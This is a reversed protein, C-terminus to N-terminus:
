LDTLTGRRDALMFVAGRGVYVCSEGVHKPRGREAWTARGDPMVYKNVMLLISHRQSENKGHDLIQLAPTTNGASM